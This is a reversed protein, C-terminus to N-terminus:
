ACTADVESILWESGRKDLQFNVWGSGGPDIEYNSRVSAGTISEGPISLKVANPSLGVLRYSGTGNNFQEEYIADVESQGSTITCDGEGNLGHRRINPTFIANLGSINKASYATEYENLVKVVGEQAERKESPSPGTSQPTTSTSTSAPTSATSSVTAAANAGSAQGGKILIAIAAGAGVAVLAVVL